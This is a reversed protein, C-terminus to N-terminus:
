RDTVKWCRVGAPPATLAVAGTAGAGVDLEAIWPEGGAVGASAGGIGTGRCKLSAEHRVWARLFERQRLAPDLLGLRRAAAPGFARAAVALTDLPRRAVEVDVGVEGTRTFAYLALQGSHSLNFSLRGPGGARDAQASRADDPSPRLAPKGQVGATFRLTRPDRRLYNGLLARLLGHARSWMLRHRAAVFRDARAREEAALLEQLDEAVASLDALWM